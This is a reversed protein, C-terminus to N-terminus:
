QHDWSNNNCIADYGGKHFSVFVCMEDPFELMHSETNNWECVTKVVTGAPLKLATDLTRKDWDPSNIWETFWTENRKIDIVQGSPLTATTVIRSGWEHLHNSWMVLELDEKVECEVTVSQKGPNLFLAPQVNTFMGAVLRSDSAPAYKVDIFSNMEVPEDTVNVYHVQMVLAYGKRVRFSIGDPLKVNDAGEAGGGGLFRSTLQDANGWEHVTGIPQPEKTAFMVAHHGGLGQHGVIDIIDTDETFVESVYEAWIGSEGPQLVMPTAKYRTYGPPAGDGADPDIPVQPDSGGCAGALGLALCAAMKLTTVKGIM